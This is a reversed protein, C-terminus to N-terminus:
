KKTKTVADASKKEEQPIVIKVPALIEYSGKTKPDADHRAVWDEAAAAEMKFIKPPSVTNNKVQVYQPM